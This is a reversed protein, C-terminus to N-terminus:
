VKALDRICSNLCRTEQRSIEPQKLSVCRKFCLTSLTLVASAVAQSAQEKVEESVQEEYM